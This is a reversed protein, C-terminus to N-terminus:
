DAKRTTFWVLWVFFIVGAAIFTWGLWTPVM